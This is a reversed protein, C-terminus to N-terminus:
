AFVGGGKFGAHYYMQLHEFSSQQSWTCSFVFGRPELDYEGGLAVNLEKGDLEESWLM